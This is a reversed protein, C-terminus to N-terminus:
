LCQANKTAMMAMGVLREWQATFVIDKHEHVCSGMNHISFDGIVVVSTCTVSTACNFPM